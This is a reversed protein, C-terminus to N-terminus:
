ITLLLRGRLLLLLLLLVCRTVIPRGILGTAVEYEILQTRSQCGLPVVIGSRLATGLVQDQRGTRPVIIIADNGLDVLDVAGM